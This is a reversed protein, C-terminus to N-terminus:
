EVNYNWKIPIKNDNQTRPACYIKKIDHARVLESKQIHYSDDWISSEGSSGGGYPGAGLKDLDLLAFRFNVTFTEDKDGFNQIEVYVYEIIRNIGRSTYTDSVIYDKSIVGEIDSENQICGSLIGVTVLMLCIITIAKKM